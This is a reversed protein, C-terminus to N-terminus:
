KKQKVIWPGVTTTFVPAAFDEPREGVLEFRIYVSYKGDYPKGKPNVTQSFEVTFPRAGGPALSFQHGQERKESVKVLPSIAQIAEELAKIRDQKKTAIDFRALCVTKNSEILQNIWATEDPIGPLPFFGNKTAKVLYDRVKVASELRRKQLDKLKDKAKEPPGDAVIHSAAVLWCCLFGISALRNM